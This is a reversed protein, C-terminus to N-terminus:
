PEGRAARAEAVQEVGWVGVDDRTVQVMLVHGGHCTGQTLRWPPVFGFPDAEDIELYPAIDRFGEGCKPCRLEGYTRPRM